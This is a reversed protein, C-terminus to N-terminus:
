AYPQDLDKELYHNLFTRIVAIAALQGIDTWSPAVATRVIDAALEFELALLLWVGFRLWAQKRLGKRSHGRIVAVAAGWLAELAAYAIILAAAGEVGVAIGQAVAKFSTEM